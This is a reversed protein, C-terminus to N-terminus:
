TGKRQRATSPQSPSAVVEALTTRVEGGVM